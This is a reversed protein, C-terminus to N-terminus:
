FPLFVDCASTTPLQVMLLNLSNHSYTKVVYIGNHIASITAMHSGYKLRSILPVSPFIKWARIPCRPLLKHRHAIGFLTPLTWGDNLGNVIALWFQPRIIIESDDKSVNVLLGFAVSSDGHLIIKTSGECIVQWRRNCKCTTPIRSPQNGHLIVKTSGECIVQWIRNWECATWISNHQNDHIAMQFKQCRYGELMHEFLWSCFMNLFIKCIFNASYYM